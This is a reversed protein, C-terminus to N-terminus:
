LWMQQLFFLPINTTQDLVGSEEIFDFMQFLVDAVFHSRGLKYIVLFDSELLLLLWLTIKGSVQSKWVLYLWAM